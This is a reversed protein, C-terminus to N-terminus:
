VNVEVAAARVPAVEAPKLMLGAAALLSAKVTWGAFAVAPTAILGATRTAPCSAHPLVTVLEVAFMVTAIPVLGLPPVSDPVDVTAATFPTAINELRDM